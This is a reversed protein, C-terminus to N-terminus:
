SVLPLTCSLIHAPRGATALSHSPKPLFVPACVVRRLLQCCAAGGGLRATGPVCCTRARATRGACTPHPPPTSPRPTSCRCPAGGIRAGRADTNSVGHERPHNPPLSQRRPLCTRTAFFRATPPTRSCASSAVVTAEARWTLSPQLFLCCSYPPVLLRFLRLACWTEFPTPLVSTPPAPPSPADRLAALWRVLPTSSVAGAAAQELSLALASVRLVTRLACSRRAGWAWGAGGLWSRSRGSGGRAAKVPQSPLARYGGGARVSLGGGRECGDGVLRTALASSPPLRGRRANTGPRAPPAICTSPPPTAVHALAPPRRLRWLFNHASPPARSGDFRPARLGTALTSAHRARAHCPSSAVGLRGVPSPPVTWVGGFTVCPPTDTCRPTSVYDGTSRGPIDHLLPPPRSHPSPSGPPPPPLAGLPLGRAPACPPPVEACGGHPPRASAPLPPTARAPPAPGGRISAGRRARRRGDAPQPTPKAPSPQHTPARPPPL